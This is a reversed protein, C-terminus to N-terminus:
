RRYELTVDMSAQDLRSGSRAHYTERFGIRAQWPPMLDMPVSFPDNPPIFSRFFRRGFDDNNGNLGGDIEVIEVMYGGFGSCSVQPFVNQDVIGPSLLILRGTNNSEDITLHISGKPCTSIVWFDGYFTPGGDFGFSHWQVELSGFWGDGRHSDFQTMYIGPTLGGGSGPEGDCFFVFDGCSETAEIMSATLRGPQRVNGLVSSEKPGQIVEGATIENAARMGKPEEPHLIVLARRPTGDALRLLHPTGDPAFAEIAPADGDFVSAVFVDPSGRWAQRHDRFPLYFDLRPLSRILGAVADPTSRVASAMEAILEQGHKTEVYEQLVLKHDTWRSDRMANRLHARVNPKALARAIGRAVEQARLETTPGSLNPADAVPPSLPESEACANAIALLTLLIGVARVYDCKKKSLTQWTPAFTM